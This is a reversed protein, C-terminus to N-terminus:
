ESINKLQPHNSYIKILIDRFSILKASKEASFYMKLKQKLTLVIKIKRHFDSYIIKSLNCILDNAVVSSINAQIVACFIFNEMLSKKLLHSWIRLFSRIQDCKSCFDKISFKMKQATYIHLPSHLTIMRLYEKTQLQVKLYTM